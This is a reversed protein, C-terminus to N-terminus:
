VCQSVGQECTIHQITMMQHNAPYMIIHMQVITKKRGITLRAFASDEFVVGAMATFPESCAM